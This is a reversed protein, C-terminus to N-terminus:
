GRFLVVDHPGRHLWFFDGAMKENSAPEIEVPIDSKIKADPRPPTKPRVAPGVIQLCVRRRVRQVVTRLACRLAQRPLMAHVRRYGYRPHAHLLKLIAQELQVARPTPSLSTFHWTSRGLGLYRCTQRGTCQGVSVVSVAAPRKQAQSVMKEM